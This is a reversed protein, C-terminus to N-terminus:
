KKFISLAADKDAKLQQVLAELSGFKQEDRLRAIFEISMKKGYLDGEYDFLHAEIRKIKEDSVTPNYGINLMGNLHMGEAFAKIAYVGMKPILKHINEGQYQVEINATPFGILRGRKVGHVVTGSLSYPRGLYSSALEPDGDLLAERIRTSSIALESLTQVSIEELQFYRKQQYEELLQYGGQRNKGFRHDYGIIITHPHFREILFYEIYDHASLNSFAEDFPIVVLHNVGHKRLLDIKEDLTTLLLVEKKTDHLVHRPHPHFTIIVSDSGLTNALHLLRSIIKAHGNHVGDFTGITLVPHKFSPLSDLGYHVQM